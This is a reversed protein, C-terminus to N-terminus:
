YNRSNNEFTEKNNIWEDKKYSVMWTFLLFSLLVMVERVICLFRLLYFFIMRRSLLKYAEGEINWFDWFYLFIVFGHSRKKGNLFFPSIERFTQNPTLRLILEIRRDTNPEDPFLPSPHFGRLFKSIFNLQLGTSPCCEAVIRFPDWKVRAIQRTCSDCRLPSPLPPLPLSATTTKDTSDFGGRKIRGENGGYLQVCQRRQM